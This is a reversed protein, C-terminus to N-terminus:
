TRLQSESIVLYGPFTNHSQIWSDRQVRFSPPDSVLCTKGQNGHLCVGLQEVFDKFSVRRLLRKECM